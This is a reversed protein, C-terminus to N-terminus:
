CRPSCNCWNQMERGVITSIERYRGILTQLAQGAFTISNDQQTAGGDLAELADAVVAASADLEVNLLMDRLQGTKQKLEAHTAAEQRYTSHPGLFFLAQQTHVHVSIALAFNNAFKAADFIAVMQDLSWIERPAWRACFPQDAGDAIMMAASMPVDLGIDGWNYFLEHIRRLM